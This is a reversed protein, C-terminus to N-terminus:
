FLFNSELWLLYAKGIRYLSMLVADEHNDQYYRNRRGVIEYGFRQYLNQAVTNNARVELASQTAGKQISTKLATALLQSGIGQERFNPHVALSAIHAEDLILWVVIVGVLKLQGGNMHAEAVWLLSAPNENLEYRYAHEPWPTSFAMRDILQVERIDEFKMSRIKITTILTKEAMVVM